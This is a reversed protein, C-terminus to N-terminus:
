GRVRRVVIFGVGVAVLAAGSGIILWRQLGAGTNVGPTVADGETPRWGDNFREPPPSEGPRRAPTGRTTSAGADEVGQADAPREHGDSGAASADFPAADMRPDDWLPVVGGYRINNLSVRLKHQTEKQMFWERTIEVPGPEYYVEVSVGESAPTFYAMWTPKGEPVSVPMRGRRQGFLVAEASNVRTPDAASLRLEISDREEMGPEALRLVIEDSSEDSVREFVRRQGEQISM